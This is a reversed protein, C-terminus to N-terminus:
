ERGDYFVGAEHGGYDLGNGDPMHHQMPAQLQPPPQLDSAKGFHPSLLKTITGLGHFREVGFLQAMAPDCIITKKDNPDQLNHAKIYAWIRKVVESRPLPVGGTQLFNALAPSLPLPRALGSGPPGTEGKPPKPPADGPITHIHPKLLKNLQFMDTSPQGLLTQLAADCNIVRKNSPDQLGHEKIYKWVGQVVETRPLQGCGLFAGLEPSLSCLKMLGGGGRKKKEEGEVAPKSKKRPKKKGKVDEKAKRKKKEPKPPPEEVHQRSNLFNQIEQRLAKKRESLDIGFEKELQIRIHKETTVDLDSSELLRHLRQVIVPELPAYDM